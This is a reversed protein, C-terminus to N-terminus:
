RQVRAAASLGAGEFARARDRYKAVQFALESSCLQYEPSRSTQALRDALRSFMGAMDDGSVVGNACLLDCLADFRMDSALARSGVIGNARQERSASSLIVPIPTHENM